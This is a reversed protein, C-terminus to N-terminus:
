VNQHQQKTNICKIREKKNILDKSTGYAYPNISDISQM